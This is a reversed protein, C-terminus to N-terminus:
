GIVVRGRLCDRTFLFREQPSREGPHWFAVTFGKHQEIALFLRDRLNRPFKIKGLLGDLL